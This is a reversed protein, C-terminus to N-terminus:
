SCLMWDDGRTSKVLTKAHTKRAPKKYTVLFFANTYFIRAFFARSFTPSISGESSSFFSFRQSRTLLYKRIQWFFSSVVFFLDWVTKRVIATKNAKFFLYLRFIQYIWKLDFYLGQGTKILNRQFYHDKSKM